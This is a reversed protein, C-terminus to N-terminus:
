TVDHRFRLCFSLYDFASARFDGSRSAEVEQSNMPLSDMQPCFILFQRPRTYDM